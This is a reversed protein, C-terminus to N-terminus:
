CHHGLSQRRSNLILGANSFLSECVYATLLSFRLNLYTHGDGNAELSKSQLVEEAFSSVRRESSMTQTHQLIRSILSCRGSNERCVQITGSSCSGKPPSLSSAKCFPTIQSCAYLLLHFTAMVFDFIGYVQMFNINKQQVKQTNFQIKQLEVMLSDMRRNEIFTLCLNHM